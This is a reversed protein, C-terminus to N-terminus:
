KRGDVKDFRKWYNNWERNCIYCPVLPLECGGFYYNRINEAEKQSINLKEKLIQIYEYGGCGRCLFGNGYGCCEKKINNVHIVYRSM